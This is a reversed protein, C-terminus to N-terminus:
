NGQIEDYTYQPKITDLSLYTYCIPLPESTYNLRHRTFVIQRQLFFPLIKFYAVSVRIVRIFVQAALYVKMKQPEYEVHIRTLRNPLKLRVKNQIEQLLKVYKWSVKRKQFTKPFPVCYLICYLGTLEGENQEFINHV